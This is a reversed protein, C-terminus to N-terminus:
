GVPPRQGTTRRAHRHHSTPTVRMPKAQPASTARAAQEVSGRNVPAPPPPPTALTPDPAAAVAPEPAPPSPPTEVTDLPPEPPPMAPELMPPAGADLELLLVPPAVIHLSSASQAGPSAHQAAVM